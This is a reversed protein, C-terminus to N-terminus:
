KESSFKSKGFNTQKDKNEFIQQDDDNNDKNQVLDGWVRTKKTYNQKESDAENKKINILGKINKIDRVREKQNVTDFMYVYRHNMSNLIQFKAVLDDKLNSSVWFNHRFVHDRQSWWYGLADMLTRNARLKKIIVKSTLMYILKQAKEKQKKIKEFMVQHKKCYKQTPEESVNEKQKKKCDRDISVQNLKFCDNCIDEIIKEFLGDWLFAINNTYNLQRIHNQSDIKLTKILIYVSFKVLSVCTDYYDIKYSEKSDFINSEENTFIFYMFSELAKKQFNRDNEYILRTFCQFKIPYKEMFSQKYHNLKNEFIDINNQDFYMYQIKSKPTNYDHTIEYKVQNISNNTFNELTWNQSIETVMREKSQDQSKYFDMKLNGFEKVKNIFADWIKERLDKTGNVKDNKSKFKEVDNRNILSNFASCMDHSMLNENDKLAYKLKKPEEQIFNRSKDAALVEKYLMQGLRMTNSHSNNKDLNSFFYKKQLKLTKKFKNKKHDSEQLKDENPINDLYKLEDKTLDPYQDLLSNFIINYFEVPKELKPPPKNPSILDKFFNQSKPKPNNLTTDTDSYKFGSKKIKILQIPSKVQSIESKLNKSVNKPKDNYSEDSIITKSFKFSRIKSEKMLEETKNKKQKSGIIKSQAFKKQKSDKISKVKNNINIKLRIAKEAVYNAIHRNIDFITNKVCQFLIDKVYFKKDLNEYIKDNDNILDSPLDRHENRIERVKKISGYLSSYVLAPCAIFIVFNNMFFSGFVWMKGMTGAHLYEDEIQVAQMTYAFSSSIETFKGDQGRYFLHFQITQNVYNTGFQQLSASLMNQSFKLTIYTERFIEKKLIQSLSNFSCFLYFGWAYLLQIRLVLIAINNMHIQVASLNEIEVKELFVDSFDLKCDVYLCKLDAVEKYFKMTSVLAASLIGVIVLRMIDGAGKNVLWYQLNTLTVTFFTNLSMKEKLNNSKTIFIDMDTQKATQHGTYERLHLLNGFMDAIRLKSSNKDTKYLNSKYELKGEFQNFLKTNEKPFTNLIIKSEDLFETTESSKKILKIYECKEIKILNKIYTSISKKCDKKLTKVQNINEPLCKNNFEVLDLCMKKIAEFDQSDVMDKLTGIEISTDNLDLPCLRFKTFFSEIENVVIEDALYQHQLQFKSDESGMEKCVNNIKELGKKIYSLNEKIKSFIRSIESKSITRLKKENNEKKRLCSCCKKPAIEGDAQIKEQFTTGCYSLNKILNKSERDINSLSRFIKELYIKYIIKRSYELLKLRKKVSNNLLGLKKIQMKHYKDIEANMGLILKNFMMGLSLRFGVINKYLIYVHQGVGSLINMMEFLVVFFSMIFMAPIVIDYGLFDVSFSTVTESHIVAGGLEIVWINSLTSIFGSDFNMFSIERDVNITDVDFLRDLFMIEWNFNANENPIFQSNSDVFMTATHNECLKSYNNQKVQKSYKNIYSGTYCNPYMIYGPNNFTSRDPNNYKVYTINTFPACYDYEVVFPDIETVNTNGIDQRFSVISTQKSEHKEYAHFYINSKRVTTVGHSRTLPFNNSFPYKENYNGDIIRGEYINILLPIGYLNNFNIFGALYRQWELGQYISKSVEWETRINIQSALFGLFIIMFFMSFFMANESRLPLCLQRFSEKIFAKIISYCSNKKLESQIKKDEHSSSEKLTGDKDTPNLRGDKLNNIPEIKDEEAIDLSKGEPEKEIEKVPGRLYIAINRREAKREKNFKITNEILFDFVSDKSEHEFNSDDFFFNHKYDLLFKCVTINEETPKNSGLFMLDWLLQLKKKISQNYYVSYIQLPAEYKDSTTVYGISLMAFFIFAYYHFLIIEINKLSVIDLSVEEFNNLYYYYKTGFMVWLYYDIMSFFYNAFRADVRAHTISKLINFGQIISFLILIFVIIQKINKQITYNLVMFNYTFLSAINLTIKSLAIIITPIYLEQIYKFHNALEFFEALDANLYQSIKPITYYIYLSYTCAFVFYIELHLNIIFANWNKKHRSLANFHRISLVTHYLIWLIIFCYLIKTLLIQTNHSDRKVEPLHFGVFNIKKSFGYKQSQLFNVEYILALGYNTNEFCVILNAIYDYSNQNHNERLKTFAGTIKESLFVEDYNNGVQFSFSQDEVVENTGKHHVKLEFSMGVLINYSYQFNINAWNHGFYKFQEPINPFHSNGSIDPSIWYTMVAKSYQLASDYSMINEFPITSSDTIEWPTHMIRSTADYISNGMKIEALGILLTLFCSYIIIEIIIKYLPKTTVTRLEDYILNNKQIQKWAKQLKIDKKKNEIIPEHDNNENQSSIKKCNKKNMIGDGGTIQKRPKLIDKELFNYERCLKGFSKVIQDRTMSKIDFNERQHIIEHFKEEAVFNDLPNNFLKENKTIDGGSM